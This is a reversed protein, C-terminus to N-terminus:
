AFLGRIIVRRFGHYIDQAWLYDAKSARGALKDVDLHASVLLTCHAQAAYTSETLAIWSHKYVMPEEFVYLSFPNLVYM